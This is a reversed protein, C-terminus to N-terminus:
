AFPVTVDATAWDVGNQSAKVTYTGAADYLHSGGGPVAVYDWEGDGFDYWVPGTSVPTVTFTAEMDTSGQVATVTTLAPLTPDLVPRAGVAEPPPAVAVTMIRLPASTSMPQYLPAPVGGVLEVAYPGSGWRNGERTSAGSITFNVAGNEVSFDGIYGGKILPLVVYGFEGDANPDDCVDSGQAGMWVELAFGESGLAIKTDAEIGVVDGTDSFVLPMKSIIEFMEFDVNCFTLEVGYGALSSEAPEYVCRKGAFNTQNVEDTAVTNATFAATIVGESTASNYEGYVLRGCNDVRTVRAVRGRIAALRRGTRVVM